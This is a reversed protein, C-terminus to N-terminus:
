KPREEESRATSAQLLVAVNRQFDGLHVHYKVSAFLISKWPTPFAQFRPDNPVVGLGSFKPAPKQQLVPAESKPPIFNIERFQCYNSNM